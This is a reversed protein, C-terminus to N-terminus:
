FLINCPHEIAENPCCHNAIHLRPTSPAPGASENFGDLSDGSGVTFEGSQRSQQSINPRFRGAASASSVASLTEVACTSLGPRAGAYQPPSRVDRLRHRGGGSPVTAPPHRSTEVIPTGPASLRQTPEPSAIWFRDPELGLSPSRLRAPYQRMTTPPQLSRTGRANPPGSTTHGPQFQVENTRRHDDRGRINRHLPLNSQRTRM